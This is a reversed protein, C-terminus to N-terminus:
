VDAARLKFFTLEPPCNVRIHPPKTGLGRNTYQLMKGVEYLGSHYRTGNRPLTLPQGNIDRIQGGHSHGSIQLDFRGSLSSIDAFDPEHILSIAANETDNGLAKLINPLSPEGYNFDDLGCFHLAGAGRRVTYVENVLPVVNAAQLLAQADGVGRLYDHNGFIGLVAEKPTFLRLAASFEGIRARFGDDRDIAYDGTFLMVDVERANVVAAVQALWEARMGRGDYHLDSVQALTFGDFAPHLRPLVLTQEVVEFAFESVTQATVVSHTQAGLAVLPVLSRKFFDRRSILNRKKRPESM